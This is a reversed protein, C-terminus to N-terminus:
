TNLSYKTAQENKDTNKTKLSSTILTMQQGSQTTEGNWSGSQIVSIAKHPADTSQDEVPFQLIKPSPSLPAHIPNMCAANPLALRIGAKVVSGAM